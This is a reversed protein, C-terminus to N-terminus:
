CSQYGEEIGAQEDRMLELLPQALREAIESVQYHRTRGDEGFDARRVILGTERLHRLHNNLKNGDRGLEQSLDTHTLPEGAEMLAYVIGFRTPDRLMHYYELYDEVDRGHEPHLVETNLRRIVPPLQEEPDESTADADESVPNQNPTPHSM